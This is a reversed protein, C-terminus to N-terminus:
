FELAEVLGYVMEAVHARTAAGYPDFKTASKGSLLGNYKAVMVAERGYAPVDTFPCIYGVPPTHLGDGGARVLMVALQLRTVKAQPAFTGDSYGNIINLAAAEEVYDFPYDSGTYAVDAFTPDTANDIETTHEDLALVIIKAFQARTVVGNPHFLGDSYGNLVGAAALGM